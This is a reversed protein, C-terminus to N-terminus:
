EKLGELILRKRLHTHLTKKILDLIEASNEDTIITNLKLFCKPCYDVLFRLNIGEIYKDSKSGCMNCLDDNCIFCKRTAVRIGCRDCIVVKEKVVM